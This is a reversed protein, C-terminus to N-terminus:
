VLLFILLKLIHLDKSTEMKKEKYKYNKCNHFFYNFLKKENSNIYNM